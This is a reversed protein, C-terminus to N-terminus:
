TFDLMIHQLRIAQGDTMRIHHSTYCDPCDNITQRNEIKESSRNKSDLYSNIKSVIQQPCGQAVYGVMCSKAIVPSYEGQVFHAIGTKIYRIRLKSADRTQWDTEVLIKAEMGYYVDRNAWGGKLRIDIRPATDPNNDEALIEQFYQYCEPDILLNIDEEDRIQEMHVILRATYMNEHWNRIYNKHLRKYAETLIYLCGQEFSNDVIAPVQSQTGVAERLSGLSM